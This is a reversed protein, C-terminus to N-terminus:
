DAGHHTESTRSIHIALRLGAVLGNNSSCEYSGYGAVGLLNLVEYGIIVIGRTVHIIPPGNCIAMDSGVRVGGVDRRSAVQMKLQRSSSEGKTQFLPRLLPCWTTSLINLSIKRLKQRLSVSISRNRVNCTSREHTKHLQFHLYTFIRNYCRIPSVFWERPVVNQPIEM